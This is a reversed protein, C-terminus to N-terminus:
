PIWPRASAPKVRAKAACTIKAIMDKIVQRIDTQNAPKPIFDVAGLMLAQITEAAGEHTLSSFMIVPRPFNSMIQRLTTLGDMQPMEVDLTIVDPELEPILKLAEHGNRASGIVKIDPHENLHQAIAFRMFASDDVVMVKVPGSSGRDAQLLVPDTMRSNM